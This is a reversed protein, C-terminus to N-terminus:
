QTQIMPNRSLTTSYQVLLENPFLLSKRHKKSLLAQKCEVQELEALHLLSDLHIGCQHFVDRFRQNINLGQKFATTIIEKADWSTLNAVDYQAIIAAIQAAEKEPRNIARRQKTYMAGHNVFKNLAKKILDTMM